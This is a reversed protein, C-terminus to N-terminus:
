SRDASCNESKIVGEEVDIIRENELCSAIQSEYDWQKEYFECDKSRPNTRPKKPKFITCCDEYPEISIDYTDIDKSIKIIELKDFVALPRIIPTNTVENIVKMSNLTQSAVQGISEGTSIAPLGLKDALRSSIRMMMRRMITICYPEAAHKYISLQLDTFPIIHLRIRAQYLNLKKMLSTLKDVVRESTYPPAAFHIMEVLIGRRLLLYAAVPSDIGGSLLHLVKGNTGLPYGGCGPYNVFSLYAYDDRIEINLTLDPNHVDVKKTKLSVLLFGGVERMVGFSDLPFAKNARRCAVKFTEFEQEKALTLAAEKIKKIDLECRLVPTIKQIGSIRQLIDVFPLIDTPEDFLIYLHDRDTQVTGVLAQAKLSHRINKALQQIFRKKNLGKTSLEGFHILLENYLM